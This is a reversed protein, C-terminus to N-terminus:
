ASLSIEHCVSSIGGITEEIEVLQWFKEALRESVQPFRIARTIKPANVTFLEAPFCISSKGVILIASDKGVHMTGNKAPSVSVEHSLAYGHYSPEQYSFEIFEIIAKM